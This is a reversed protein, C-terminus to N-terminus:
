RKQQHSSIEEGEKTIRIKGSLLFYLWPDM